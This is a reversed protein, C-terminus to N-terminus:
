RICDRSENSPNDNELFMNVNTKHNKIARPVGCKKSAIRLLLHYVKRHVRVDGGNAVLM